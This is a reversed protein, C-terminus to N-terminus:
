RPVERAVVLLVLGALLLAVALGHRLNMKEDLLFYGSLQTGVILLGAAFPFAFSLPFKRLAYLWLIAGFAYMFLGFAFEFSVITAAAKMRHLAFLTTPFYVFFALYNLM